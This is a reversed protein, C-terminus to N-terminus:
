RLLEKFPCAIGQSKFVTEPGKQVFEEYSAFWIRTGEKTSAPTDRFTEFWEQLSEGLIMWVEHYEGRRKHSEFLDEYEKPSRTITSQVHIAIKRGKMELIGNPVPDIEHGHERLLRESTWNRFGLEWLIMRVTVAKLREALSRDLNQPPRYLALWHDRRSRRKLTDLGRRGLLYYDVEQAECHKRELYGAKLLQSVQKACARGDEETMPKYFMRIHRYAFYCEEHAMQLLDVDKPTLSWGASKCDKM